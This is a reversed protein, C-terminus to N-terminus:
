MRFSIHPHNQHYLKKRLSSERLRALPRFTVSRSQLKCSGLLSYLLALALPNAPLTLPCGSLPLGCESTDIRFKSSRLSILIHQCCQSHPLSTRRSGSIYPPYCPASSCSDLLISPYSSLPLSYSLCSFTLDSSPV